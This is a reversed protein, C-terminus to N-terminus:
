RVGGGDPGDLLLASSATRRKDVRQRGHRSRSDATDPQYAAPGARPTNAPTCQPPVAAGTVHVVGIRPSRLLGRVVGSRPLPGTGLPRKVVHNATGPCAPHGARFTGGLDAIWTCRSRGPPPSSSGRCPCFDADTDSRGYRALYSM